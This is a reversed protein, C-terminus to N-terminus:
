MSLKQMEAAYLKLKRADWRKTDTQAPSRTKITSATGPQEQRSTADHKSSLEPLMTNTPYKLTPSPSRANSQHYESSIDNVSKMSELANNRIFVLTRDLRECPKVKKKFDQIKINLAKSKNAGDRQAVTGFIPAQVKPDITEFNTRYAGPAPVPSPNKLHTEFYKTRSIGKFTAQMARLNRLRRNHQRSNLAGRQSSDKSAVRKVSERTGSKVSDVDM